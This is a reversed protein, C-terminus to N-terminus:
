REGRLIEPKQQYGRSSTWGKRVPSNKVRQYKGTIETQGKAKLGFRKRRKSTQLLHKRVGGKHFSDLQEYLPWRERPVNTGKSKNSKKQADTGPVSTDPATETVRQGTKEEYIQRSIIL